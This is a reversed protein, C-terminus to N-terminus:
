LHEYEEEEEDQYKEMATEYEEEITMTKKKRVIKPVVRKVTGGTNHAEIDLYIKPFEEILTTAQKKSPILGYWGQPHRLLLLLTISGDSVKRVYFEIESNGSLKNWPEHKLNHRGEFHTPDGFYDLVHEKSWGTM